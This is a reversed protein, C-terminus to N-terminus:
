GRAEAARWLYWSAVSRYPAWRAGHVQVEAPTPLRDLSCLHRLGKRVGLDSVPLVDPRGLGFILLMEATWRGIGRVAILREVVAEDDLAALARADPVTGDALKAQLDRVAMVKARSMGADRLAQDAIGALAQACAPQHAPFLALVRGHITGAARGSLQQYVIARLLSTFPDFEAPPALCFGGVERILSAMAADTRALYALAEDPDYGLGPAQRVPYVIAEADM